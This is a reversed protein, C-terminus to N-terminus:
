SSWMHSLFSCVQKFLLRKEKETNHGSHRVISHKSMKIWYLQPEDGVSDTPGQFREGKRTALVRHRGFQVLSLQNLLTESFDQSTPMSDQKVILNVNIDM